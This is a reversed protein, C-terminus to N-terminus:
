ILFYPFALFWLDYCLNEMYTSPSLSLGEGREYLSLFFESALASHDVSDSMWEYNQPTHVLFRMGKLSNYMNDYDSNVNVVLLMVSLDVRALFVTRSREKLSFSNPSWIEEEAQRRCYSLNQSGRTKIFFCVCQRWNLSFHFCVLIMLYKLCLYKPEKWFFLIRCVRSMGECFLSISNLMILADQTMNKLYLLFLDLLLETKLWKYVLFTFVPRIIEIVLYVQVFRTLSVYVLSKNLIEPNGLPGIEYISFLM